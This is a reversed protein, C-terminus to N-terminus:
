EDKLTNLLVDVMKMVDQKDYVVFMQEDEYLGDRMCTDCKLPFRVGSDAKMLELKEFMEGSDKADDFDGLVQYIWYNELSRYKISMDGFYNHGYKCYVTGSPM